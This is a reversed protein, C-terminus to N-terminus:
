RSRTSGSASAAGGLLRRRSTACSRGARAPGEHRSRYSTPRLSRRMGAQRLQYRVARTFRPNRTRTGCGARSRSVSCPRRPRPAPTRAGADDRGRRACRAHRHPERDDSATTSRHAARRQLRAILPCSAARWRRGTCRRARDREAASEHDQEDHEANQRGPRAPRPRTRRRRQALPRVRTTSPARRGRRRTTRSWAPARRGPDSPTASKVTAITAPCVTPPMTKSRMPSPGPPRRGSVSVRTIPASSASAAIPQATDACSACSTGIRSMTSGNMAPTPAAHCCATLPRTRLDGGLLASVAVTSLKATPM